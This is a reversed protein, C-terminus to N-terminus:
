ELKQAENDEKSSIAGVVLEPNLARVESDLNHLAISTSHFLM